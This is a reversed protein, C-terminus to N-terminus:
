CRMNIGRRKESERFEFMAQAGVFLCITSVIIYKLGEATAVLDHLMKSMGDLHVCFGILNAIMMMWINAVAGVACLHRYIPRSAWKKAPFMFTCAVEPLIFIVVLWGWFLLHLQIDHWIAVFTFVVLSNLIPRKSGGLPIYVYRLIWRNYSRHWARWFSLASYNNNVCRIMNEPADIGDILAWLRFLRWPILLKLWIVNLNFLGIMSIQFPSDNEWARTQSIAVVYAYHLLLEMTLVCFLFRIAYLSVRRINISPLLATTQRIYDNFTLIPGAIYLPAYLCYAFYNKFNYQDLDLPTEIRARDNLIVSDPTLDSNKRKHGNSNDSAQFYDVNYSVMRLMTFNFHVDWRSMLGHYADISALSPHLYRLPYGETLENAFLMAIGIVWTLAYATKANQIRSIQFNIWLLICIKVVNLGHIGILFILSFIVDFNIRSISLGNAVKKMVYHLVVVAALYPLNDRFSAYQADSNDVKRDFIWGQQLLHSYKDYNENTSSSADVAAKIMLPVCFLFFLAYIFFETTWWRSPGASSIIQQRKKEDEPPELRTDLVEVSFISLINLM